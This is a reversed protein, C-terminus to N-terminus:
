RDLQSWYRKVTKDSVKSYLAVDKQTVKQGTLKLLDYASQLSNLTKSVKRQGREQQSVREVHIQEFGDVSGAKNFYNDICYQRQQEDLVLFKFEKDTNREQNRIGTRALFQYCGNLDEWRESLDADESDDFESRQEPSFRISCLWVAYDIRSYCNLGEAKPPIYVGGISELRSRFFTMFKFGSEGPEDNNCTFLFEKGEMQEAVRKVIEEAHDKIARKSARVDLLSNIKVRDANIHRNREPDIIIQDSSKVAAIYGKKLGRKIIPAGTMDAGVFVTKCVTSLQYLDSRALCRIYMVGDKETVKVNDENILAILLAASKTDGGKLVERLKDKRTAYMMGDKITTFQLWPYVAAVETQVQVAIQKRAEPAEDIIVQCDILALRLGDDYNLRMSLLELAKHTIIIVRHQYSKVANSVASTVYQQNNKTGMNLNDTNIIVSGPLGKHIQECLVDTKAAVIFRSSPTNNIHNTYAYTKGAGCVGIVVGVFAQEFETNNITVSCGNSINIM